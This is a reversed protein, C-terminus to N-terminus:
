DYWRDGDRKKIPCAARLAAYDAPSISPKYARGQKYSADFLKARDASRPHSNLWKVSDMGGADKSLKRFLAGTPRPDIGARDLAAIAERDAEEENSRTYSLSVLQQANAGIDGAFMRVLAGIGLERILAQTVHRKRVHGIEHALIGAMADPNDVDDLAGDFIVIQNGPIAAANFVGVNLVTMPITALGPSPPEIRSAMKRLAADAQGDHCAVDGFDGVLATGLNNEWSQPVLPALWQPASYGIVLVVAAAAALAGTAKWLGVKDIWRGYVSNVPLLAAIAPPIPEPLVLRWGPRDRHGLTTRQASRDIVLMDGPALRDDGQASGVVLSGDQADVTVQHRDATAGDYHFADM